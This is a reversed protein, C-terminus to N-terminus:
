GFNCIVIKIHIRYLCMDNEMLSDEKLNVKKVRLNVTEIMEIKKKSNVIEKVM